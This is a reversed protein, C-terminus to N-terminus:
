LGLLSRWEVGNESAPDIGSNVGDTFPLWQWDEGGTCALPLWRVLLDDFSAALRFGHGEGDDHSLYVVAGLPDFALQDGNGVEYFALKEHWVLDYPDERNGFVEEVWGQRGKEFTPLLDISWHLDGCFNERFPEPFRHGSPAFWRFEVHRSVETLVRRFSAPLPSGIQREVGAIEQPTAPRDLVLPRVDFGLSGLRAVLM